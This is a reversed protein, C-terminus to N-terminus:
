HENTCFQTGYLQPRGDGVRVRDELYAIDQVHVEETPQAKMLALCMRQFERDHDAHQVLLWAQRSAAAGVKSISPWGMEAVIQRMRETHKVDLSADWEGSKRMHQDAESMTLIESVIAQVHEKSMSMREEQPQQDCGCALVM